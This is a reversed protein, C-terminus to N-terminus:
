LFYAKAHLTQADRLRVGGLSVICTRHNQTMPNTYNATVALLHKM